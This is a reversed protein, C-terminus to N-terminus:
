CSRSSASTARRATSSSARSRSPTRRRAIPLWCRTRSRPSCSRPISGRRTPSSASPTSSRRPCRCSRLWILAASRRSRFRLLAGDEDRVVVRQDDSELLEGRIRRRGELPAHLRVDAERGVFVNTTRPSRSRARFAPPRSRSRTASASPSSHAASRPAASTISATPTTSSCECCGEPSSGCTSSTSQPCSPASCASSTRQSRKQTGCLWIDTDEQGTARVRAPACFLRTPSGVKGAGVGGVASM